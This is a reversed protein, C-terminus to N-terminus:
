AASDTGLPVRSLLFHAVDLLSSFHEAEIPCPRMHPHEQDLERWRDVSDRKADATSYLVTTLENAPEEEYTGLDRRLASRFNEPERTKRGPPTDAALRLLYVRRLQGDPRYGTIYLRVYYYGGAPGHDELMLRGGPSCLLMVFAVLAPDFYRITQGEGRPKNFTVRIVARGDEQILEPEGAFGIWWEALAEMLLSDDPRDTELGTAAFKSAQSLWKVLRTFVAAPARTRRFSAPGTDLTSAHPSM